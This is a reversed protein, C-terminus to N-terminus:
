WALSFGITGIHNKASINYAYQVNFYLDPTVPDADDAVNTLRFGAVPVTVLFEGMYTYSGVPKRVGLAMGLGLTRFRGFKLTTFHYGVLLTGTRGEEQYLQFMDIHSAFQGPHAFGYEAQVPVAGLVLVFVALIAVLLKAPRM